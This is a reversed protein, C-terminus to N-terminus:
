DAAQGHTGVSQLESFWGQRSANNTWVDSGTGKIDRSDPAYELFNKKVIHEPETTFPCIPCVCKKHCILSSGGSQTVARSHPRRHCKNGTDDHHLCWSTMEVADSGAEQM